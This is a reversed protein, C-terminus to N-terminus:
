APDWQDILGDSIATGRSAAFAAFDRATCRAVDKRAARSREVARACREVYAAYNREADNM